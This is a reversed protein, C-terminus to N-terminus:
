RAVAGAARRVTRVFTWVVTAAMCLMWLYYGTGYETIPGDSADTPINKWVVADVTCLALLIALLRSLWPVPRQWFTMAPLLIFFLINAFWGFQILLVGLWGVMLAHYGYMMEGSRAVPLGLTVLYLLALAGGIALRQPRDNM